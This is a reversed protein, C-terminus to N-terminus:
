VLFPDFEFSIKEFFVYVDDDGVMLLLEEDFFSLVIYLEGMEDSFVVIMEWFFSPFEDDLEVLDLIGVVRM